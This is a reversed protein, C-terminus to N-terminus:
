GIAEGEYWPQLELTRVYGGDDVLLMVGGDEMAVLTDSEDSMLMFAHWLAYCDWNCVDGETQVPNNCWACTM